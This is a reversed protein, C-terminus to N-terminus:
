AALGGQRRRRVALALRLAAVGGELPNITPRGLRVSEVFHAMEDRYMDNVQWREPQCLIQAPQGGIDHLIVRGDHFDWAITGESGIVQCTRRYDRQVFNLHVSALAGSDHELLLEALGDTELGLSSAPRVVGAALRAPGFYWLALDIEHICDLVAGGHEPSASYSDRYDQGARWAPLYSGTHLRAALVTGIAREALLGHIAAPGPHFRMNCGVLTVLGRRKATQVLEDVGDLAHSLPKEVFLHCGAAAVQLAQAAHLATPSAVVAFAPRWALGQQLVDFFSLDERAIMRRRGESPEVVGLPGIGLGQLNRLHRSGISGGGIVLARMADEEPQRSSKKSFLM